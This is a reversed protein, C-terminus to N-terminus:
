CLGISILCTSQWTQRQNSEPISHYMLHRTQINADERVCLCKGYLYTSGYEREAPLAITKLGKLSLGCQQLNHM